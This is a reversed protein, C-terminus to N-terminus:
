ALRWTNARLSSSNTQAQKALSVRYRFFHHALPSLGRGSASSAVRPLLVVERAFVNAMGYVALSARNGGSPLWRITPLQSPDPSRPNTMFLTHAVLKVTESTGGARCPRRAPLFRGAAPRNELRRPPGGPQGRRGRHPGGGQVDGHHDEVLPPQPVGGAHDLPGGPLALPLHVEDDGEVAAEVLVKPGPVVPEEPGLFPPL